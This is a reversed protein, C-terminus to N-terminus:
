PELRLAVGSAANALELVRSFPDFGVSLRGQLADFIREEQTGLGDQTCAMRTTVLPGDIVLMGGDMAAQGRFRNCGTSGSIAGDPSFVFETEGVTPEGDIAAIRWPEPEAVAAADDEPYSGEALFWGAAWGEVGRYSVRCWRTRAAAAREADTASQWEEFSLGGECGLNRIGDGNWPIEGIKRASADPAERINLVDNEAVGTVQFFDPGDADARAALGSALFLCLLVLARITVGKAAGVSGEM